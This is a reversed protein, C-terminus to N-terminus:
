SGSGQGPGGEGGGGGGGGRGPGPGRRAPRILLYDQKDPLIAEGLFGTAQGPWSKEAASAPAARADLRYIGQVPTNITELEWRWDQGAFKVTGTMKTNAPKQGALRAEVVRNMAVWQALTRDRLYSSTRVTQNVTTFLAGLGLAVIALAILVEVLTFGRQSRDPRRM